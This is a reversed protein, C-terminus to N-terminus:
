YEPCPMYDFMCYGTVINVVVHVFGGIIRFVGIELAGVFVLGILFLVAMTALTSQFM